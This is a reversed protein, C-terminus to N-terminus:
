AARDESKRKSLHQRLSPKPKPQQARMQDLKFLMRTLSNSLALYERQSHETLGGPKLAERDMLIMRLHLQAGRELLATQCPPLKGGLQRKIRRKWGAMIKAEPSSRDLGM